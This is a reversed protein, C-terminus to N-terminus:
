PLHRQAKTTENNDVEQEIINRVCYEIDKLALAVYSASDGRYILDVIEDITKAIRQLNYIQRNNM